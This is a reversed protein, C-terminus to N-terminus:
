CLPLVGTTDPHAEALSRALSFAEAKPLRIINRLPVCDPHCYNVLVLERFPKMPQACGM